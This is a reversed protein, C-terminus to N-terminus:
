STPATAGGCWRPALVDRARPHRLEGLHHTAAGHLRLQVRDLPRTQRPRLLVLLRARPAGRGATVGPLRGRPDRHIEPRQARVRGAVVPGRDVVGVAALTLGGIKVVVAFARRFSIERDVWIAFIIWLIPAVGAFVLATANVGGIVQVVFAFIAPYMWGRDDRLARITIALLWPLGAFPLLIVSIRSAFDLTYPTLMFALAAVPVGAGRVKLTRLLFLVGLAAVFYISGLWLRQSVWAPVGAMHNVWYFPGMPFLYGINQHTVTGLGINPDWMSSARSLLRGPDLYLYTKTDAAVQGPSSLMVPVYALLALALYGLRRMGRSAPALARSATM